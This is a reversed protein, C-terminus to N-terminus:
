KFVVIPNAKNRTNQQNFEEYMPPLPVAIEQASEGTDQSSNQHAWFVYVRKCSNM